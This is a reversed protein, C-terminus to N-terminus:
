EPHEWQESTAWSLAQTPDDTDRHDGAHGDTLACRYLDGTWRGLFTSACRKRRRTM